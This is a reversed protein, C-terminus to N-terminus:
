VKLLKQNRQKKYVNKGYESKKMVGIYFILYNHLLIIFLKKLIGMRKKMINVYRKKSIAELGDAEYIIRLLPDIKRGKIMQLFNLNHVKIVDQVRKRRIKKIFKKTQIEFIEASKNGELFMDKISSSLITAKYCDHWWAALEILNNDIDKVYKPNSEKLEEYINLMHISVQQAHEFGHGVSRSRKMWIKGLEIAEQEKTLKRM